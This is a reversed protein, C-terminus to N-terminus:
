EQSSYHYKKAWRVIHQMQVNLRGEMKEGRQLFKINSVVGKLIDIELYDL